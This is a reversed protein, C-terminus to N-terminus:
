HRICGRDSGFAAAAPAIAPANAVLVVQGARNAIWGQAETLVPATPTSPQPEVTSNAVANTRLSAWAAQTETSGIAEAPSPPLGGRGTVVFQSLRNSHRISSHNSPNDLDDSFHNSAITESSCTQAIRTAPDVPNTPLATLGRSPDAELGNIRVTGPDGFTSSVTIDSTRDSGELRYQIGFIQDSHINVQGGNGSYANASIDDNSFPNALIFQADIMVNGGNGRLRATGASASIQSQRDLSLLTAGQIRVNGGSATTSTASLHSNETLQISRATLDLDGGLGTSQSPDAEADNPDTFTSATIDSQNTLSLQNTQITVKGSNGLQTIGFSGGIFISSGDLSVADGATITITGADSPTSTAATIASGGALRLVRTAIRINGGRGKNQTSASITSQRLAITDANIFLQGADSDGTGSSDGLLFSQGTLSLRDSLNLYITGGNGKSTSTVSSSLTSGNSLILSRATVTLDGGDVAIQGNQLRVDARAAEPFRLRLSNGGELAVTGAGSLGGVEVHSNSSNLRGKNAIEVDGGLLLLSRDAPVQLGVQSKDREFSSRNEIQGHTGQSFLFASPDVSLLAPVTSETASFEGQQGFRIADATSVAFSGNLNLSAHNGFVVGKPNLLFLNATGDVALQGDIQSAVGGTVRVLINRAGSSAFRVIARNPVNFTRFSHFLNRNNPSRLGGDITCDTVCTESSGRIITGTTSDPLVQAFVSGAATLSFLGTLSSALCFHNILRQIQSRKTKTQRTETQRTLHIMQIELSNQSQTGM